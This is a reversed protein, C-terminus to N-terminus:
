VKLKLGYDKITILEKVVKPLEQLHEWYESREVLKSFLTLIAQQVLLEERSYNRVDGMMQRMAYVGGSLENISDQSANVSTGTAGQRESQPRNFGNAEANRWFTELFANANAIDGGLGGFFGGMINTIKDSLQQETLKDDALDKYAQEIDKQLKDFTDKLYLTFVMQKALDNLVDTVNSKFLQAADTGQSFATVISDALSDGLGGFTQSLYDRLQQEAEDAGKSLELLSELLKRNEDSMKHTDLISQIRITNLKGEKDIVDDYTDLLNSYVDKRKKWFGWGSKRSGTVIEVSGLAGIGENYDKLQKQYKEWGGNALNSLTPSFEPKEGKIEAALEKLKARYVDIAAVAGRIKDTGFINSGQKYLLQEELLLRNYERQMELKALALEKLAKQHEKEVQASHALMKIGQSVTAMVGGAIGGTAFGEAIGGLADLALDLDESIGGFMGKIEGIVASATAGGKKFSDFLSAAKEKAEQESDTVKEFGKKIKDFLVGNVLGSISKPSSQLNKLKAELLDAEKKDAEVGTERLLKIRKELYKKTIEYKTEEAITTLGISAFYNAKEMELAEDLDTQRLKDNIGAKDIDKNRAANLRNVEEISAGAKTAEKILSDYYSNIEYINQELENAFRASVESFIDNITKQSRTNIRALETEYLKAAAVDLAVLLTRQETAPKGTKKELEAVEKYRKELELKTEEWDAKAAARENEAGEHIAKVRADDIKKQLDYSMKQLKDAAKVADREAKKQASEADKEAKRSSAVSWKQLAKDAEDRKKKANEFVPSNPLSADMIRQQEDKIKQWYKKSGTIVDDSAKGGAAAITKKSESDFGLAREIWKLSENNLKEAESKDRNAAQQSFFAEGSNAVYKGSAVSRAMSEFRNLLSEAGDSITEFFSRDLTRREAADMAQLYEKYKETALEMAAVSKARLAISERFAPANDVFLNEADNVNNISVGFSNYADINDRVLKEKQKLDDKAGVWQKRLKEYEVTQKAIGAESAENLKRINEAAERQEKTWDRYTKVALAVVAVIAGIGTALGLGLLLRSQAITLGLQTNLIKVANAWGIKVAQIIRINGIANVVETNEIGLSECIKKITASLIQNSASYTNASKGGEEMKKDIETQTDVLEKAKETLTNETDSLGKRAQNLVDTLDAGEKSAKNMQETTSQYVALEQKAKNLAAEMAEIKKTAGDLGSGSAETIKKQEALATSMDQIVKNLREIEKQMDSVSKTMEENAVSAKGAEESVNQNMNIDIDVPELM